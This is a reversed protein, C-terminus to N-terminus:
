PTEIVKINDIEKTINTKDPDDYEEEDINKKKDIEKIEFLRKYKKVGDKTYGDAVRKPELRLDYVKLIQRVLNLLPWNQKLSANKQTSTFFTTKLTLKLQPIYEKIENYILENLLKDRYIINGKLDDIKLVSLGLKKLILIVIDNLTNNSLDNYM